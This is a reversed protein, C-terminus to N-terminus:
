NLYIKDGNIIGIVRGKLQKGIFPSNRSKSKINKEDFIYETAPDFLTLTAKSGEKFEPVALGFAKRPFVSLKEVLTEISWQGTVMLWIVGFLSELGIMGNKAYEFECVKSDYNHPIHHSAIFDVTGDLLGQLLSLSDAR